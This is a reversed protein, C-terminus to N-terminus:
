AVGGSKWAALVILAFAAIAVGLVIWNGRDFENWNM